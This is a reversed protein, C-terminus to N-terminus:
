ALWLGMLTRKKLCATNEMVVRHIAWLHQIIRLVVHQASAKLIAWMLEFRQMKVGSHLHLVQNQLIAKLGHVMITHSSEGCM